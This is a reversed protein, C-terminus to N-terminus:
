HTPLIKYKKAFDSLFKLISSGITGKRNNEGFCFIRSICIDFLFMTQRICAGRATDSDGVSRRFSTSWIRRLIQANELICALSFLDLIDRGDSKKKTQTGLDRGRAICSCTWSICRATSCRTHGRARPSELSRIQLRNQSFSPNPFLHFRPFEVLACCVAGGAVFVVTSCNECYEM